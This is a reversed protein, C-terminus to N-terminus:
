FLSVNDYLWACMHIQKEKIWVDKYYVGLYKFVCEKRKVYIYIYIYIDFGWCM